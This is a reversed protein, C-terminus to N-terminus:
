ILAKKIIGGGLVKSGVYFVVSQGATVARQPSLFNISIQGGNLVAKVPVSEQRYRVKVKLRSSSIFQAPNKVLWNLSEAVLGKAFLHYSARNDVVLINNKIDKKVVYYPVGGGRSGTGKRQGQTYFWAGEHTGVKEGSVTVVDGQKLPLKTKLYERVNIKGIFCIGQSDKKQANILKYEQAMSRVRDKTYNGIPFLIKPLVKADINWLFYSQDKNKDVGKYLCYQNQSKTSSSTSKKVRAYHGTAIFDAGQVLAKKYFAKFKIHSNCMVDPNPTRGAKYESFFYSIVKEHYEKEFNWVKFSIELKAAVTKADRLDQEWPCVDAFRSDDSHWNKMFVAVVNYGQKKLLAAAVSSDVGGSMGLYVTKKNAKM